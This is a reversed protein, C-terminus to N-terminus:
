LAYCVTDTGGVGYHRLYLKYAPNLQKILLPLDVLDMPKHYACVALKPKYRQITKAAGLLAEREAGEIDLKIVTVPHGDSLQDISTVPVEETGQESVCSSGDSTNCFKLITSESWLGKPVFEIEPISKLRAYAKQFNSLDPECLYYKECGSVKERFSDYTDGTYAGGDIVVENETLSFLNDDFYMGGKETIADIYRNNLSLRFRILHDFVERSKCDEWIQYSQDFLLVNEKLLEKYQLSSSYTRFDVCIIKEWNRLLRQLQSVIEHRYIRSAVVIYADSYEEALTEASIIPLDFLTTGVKCPSNDVFGQIVIGQERLICCTNKGVSGTTFIFVKARPDAKIKQIWKTGENTEIDEFSQLSFKM